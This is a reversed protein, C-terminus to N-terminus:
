GQVGDADKSFALKLQPDVIVLEGEITAISLAGMKVRGAPKPTVKAKCVLDRRNAEPDIAIEIIIKRTTTPDTQEDVINSTILDFARDVEERLEGDLVTDLTIRQLKPM